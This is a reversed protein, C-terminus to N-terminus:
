TALKNKSLVENKLNSQSAGTPIKSHICYSFTRSALLRNKYIHTWLLTTYSQLKWVQKTISLQEM